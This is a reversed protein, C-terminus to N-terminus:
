APGQHKSIVLRHDTWCEAGCMAKTVRVDQRDKRSVLVYDIIQWHKSRPHMWTTRNHTPLPFMTNTVSLHFEACTQLLLLGNSNCSGIGYKRIIRDWAINDSGIRANFDSLVVLKDAKLESTILTHLEEYLKHKAEGPNM